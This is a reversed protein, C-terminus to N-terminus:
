NGFLKKILPITIRRKLRMSLDDLKNIISILESISRKSYTILYKIENEGLNISRINAIFKIAKPLNCSKVSMLEIHDIKKIRSILDQLEFEISSPNLSSCFIIRCQSNFCSNILNFLAIEWEKNRAVLEIDDICILNLQDLSDLIKSGYNQAEKLPVYLSLKDKSSYYNCVSQLLFTKGTQSIGYLFLDDDRLLADKVALNSEEFYFEELLSKNIKSWPFTLQKPNNM